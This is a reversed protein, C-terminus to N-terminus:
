RKKKKLAVMSTFKGMPAQPKAEAEGNQIDPKNVTVKKKGKNEEYIIKYGGEPAVVIKFKYKKISLKPNEAKRYIMMLLQNDGPLSTKPYAEHLQNFIANAEELTAFHHEKQLKRLIRDGWDPIDSKPRSKQPHLNLEVDVKVAQLSYRKHKLIVSIEAYNGRFGKEAAEASIEYDKIWLRVKNNALNEEQHRAILFKKLIEQFRKLAQEENAFKLKGSVVAGILPHSLTAVRPIYVVENKAKRSTSGSFSGSEFHEANMM